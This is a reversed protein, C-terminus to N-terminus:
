AMLYPLRRPASSGPESASRLTETDWSAALRDMLAAITVKLELRTGPAWGHSDLSRCILLAEDGNLLGQIRARALGDWYACAEDASIELMKELELLAQPRLGDLKGRVWIAFEMLRNDTM